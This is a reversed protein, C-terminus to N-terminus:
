RILRAITRFNARSQDTKYHQAARMWGEHDNKGFERRLVECFQTVNQPKLTKRAREFDIMVPKKKTIIIHKYPHHMEEKTIHMTDLVFCQQLVELLVKKKQGRTATPLWDRLLVGEIFEYVVYDKSALLLRPGIGKKNANKLMIAENEISDTAMSETKKTKIAVKTRGLMGTYIVGRKGHAFYHTDHIKKAELTQLLETKTIKYVYLDEFFIHTTSLQQWKFLNNVLLEEVKAKNTLSSFLLLILGRPKLYENADHLFREILEWGKKGGVLERNNPIKNEAPLYPPNFMITDFARLYKAANLSAFLNGQIYKIKKNASHKKCYAIAQESMDVALVKSVAPNKAAALAQIGSGTGMDLVFGHAHQCVQAALLESDEAPQYVM